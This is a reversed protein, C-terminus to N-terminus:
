LYLSQIKSPAVSPIPRNLAESVHIVSVFLCTLCIPLSEKIKKPEGVHESRITVNKPIGFDFDNISM